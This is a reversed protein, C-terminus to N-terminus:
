FVRISRQSRHPMPDGPMFEHDVEFWPLRYCSCEAPMPDPDPRAVRVLYRDTM